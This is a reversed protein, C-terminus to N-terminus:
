LPSNERHAIEIIRIVEQVQQPTVDLKAGDRIVSFVNDYFDTPVTAKSPVSKEIWPLVEGNGYARGVPPGENIELPELLGPDFYKIESSAGDSRLTGATGLVTWKPESFACSTSVELDIVRGNEGKFVIKAHDDADGVDTTLQLDTFLRRVPSDLLLLAADIFHPCTNNLNGGGFKQLTQWDSRRAFGLARIRIEFVRGLLGSGIFEQIHRFDSNYRYNQHIFLKKNALESAAIMRKAERTNMAMPKEVVAHRGSKLVAVCHKAHDVSQSAVVVLECQARKVLQRYDSFSECQFKAEAERCREKQIDSVAVVRFRGDGSLRKVHIDWGARGLGIVGVAIPQNTRL